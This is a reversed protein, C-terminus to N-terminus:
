AARGAMQAYLDAYGATMTPISFRTVARLRAREGLDQAQAPMLSLLVNWAQALADADGIPVVQGLDGVVSVPGAMDTTVCPVGCAMAEALVLAFSEAYRSCCTAADLAATLRPLDDRLGLLHTVGDVGAALLWSRLRANDPTVGSGCLVFHVDPRTQHLVGAARCFTEHDKQPDFRAMLGVLPASIPLGLERRVSVRSNSDPHFADTDVGNSVVQLQNPAYGQGLCDERVAESVCVAKTCLVRALRANLHALMATQRKGQTPDISTNHLTWLVPAGTGALRAALGGALDAHHLWTQILDPRARRIHAALTPLLRPDPIGRAFGLARVPIDQARIQGGLHGETTLSVVECAFQKRSLHSVLHLLIREAGGSQLGTIIHMVKFPRPAFSLAAKSGSRTQEQPVIM